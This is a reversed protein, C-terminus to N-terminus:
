KLHDPSNFYVGVRLQETAHRNVIKEGRGPPLDSNLNPFWPHSSAGWHLVWCSTKKGKGLPSQSANRCAAAEGWRTALGWASMSQLGQSHFYHTEAALPFGWSLFVWVQFPLTNQDPKTVVSCPSTPYRAWKCVQFGSGQKKSLTTLFRVKEVLSFWWLVLGVCPSKVYSGPASSLLTEEKQSLTLPNLPSPLLRLMLGGLRGSFLGRREWLM